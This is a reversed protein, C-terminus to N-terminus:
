FYIYINKANLIKVYLSCACIVHIESIYQQIKHDINRKKTQKEIDRLSIKIMTNDM